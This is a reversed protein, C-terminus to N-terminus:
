HCCKTCMKCFKLNLYHSCCMQLGGVAMLYSGVKSDHYHHAIVITLLGCGLLFLVTGRRHKFYGYCISSLALVASIGIFIREVNEDALWAISTLPLITLILPMALCHIACIFSAFAGTKDLTSHEM